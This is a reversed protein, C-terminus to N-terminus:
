KWDKELIIKAFEIAAKYDNEYRNGRHTNIVAQLFNEINGNFCGCCVWISNDKTIYFTTYDWRSGIPGIVLFDNNSKINAGYSLNINSSKLNVNYIKADGRIYALGRISSNEINANNQIVINSGIITSNSIEAFNSIIIRGNLYSDKIQANGNISCYGRITNNGFVKAEGEIISSDTIVSNDSINATDHVLCDKMLLANKDVVAYDAVVADDRVWCRGEHSLNLESRVFGGLDGANVINGEKDIFTRLSKIRYVTQGFYTKTEKTLEYKREM